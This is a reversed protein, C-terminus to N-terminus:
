KKALVKELGEQVKTAIFDYFPRQPLTQEDILGKKATDLLSFYLWREHPQIIAPVYGASELQFNQAHRTTRGNGDMFPHIYLLHLHMYAAYEVPHIKDKLQRLNTFLEGMLKPVLTYTPAPIEHPVNFEVEAVRVGLEGQSVIIGQVVELDRISIGEDKDVNDRCYVWATNLRQLLKKAERGMRGPIVQQMGPYEICLSTNLAEHELAARRQNHVLLIKKDSYSSLKQKLSDIEKLLDGSVYSVSKVM